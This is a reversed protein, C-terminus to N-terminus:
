RIISNDKFEYFAVTRISSGDAFVYVYSTMDIDQCNVYSTADDITVSSVKDSEENYKYFVTNSLTCYTKLTSFVTPDYIGGSKAIVRINMNEKAFLKGFINYYNDNVTRDGFLTKYSAIDFDVSMITAKLKKNFAVRIIDGREIPVKKNTSDNKVFFNDQVSFIEGTYTKGSYGYVREVIDGEDDVCKVVRDVMIEVTNRPIAIPSSPMYQEATMYAIIVKPSGGHGIQYPEVAYFVDGDFTSSDALCVDEPKFDATGETSPVCMVVTSNGITFLDRFARGPAKYRISTRTDTPISYSDRYHNLIFVDKDLGSVMSEPALATEIFSIDGNGNLTYRILQNQFEAQVVRKRDSYLERGLITNAFGVTGIDDANVIVGPTNNVKIKNALNYEKLVGDSNFVQVKVMRDATKSATIGMIYGYIVSAAKDIKAGAINGEIDIYFIGSDGVEIPEAFIPYARNLKYYNENIGLTINGKEDTSYETVKGSVRERIYFADVFEGDESVIASIVDWEALESIDMQEGKKVLSFYSQPENSVKLSKAYKDYIINESLSVSSVVFNKYEMITVLDYGNGRTDSVTITGATTKFTNENYSGMFKGNYVIDKGADLKINVIKKSPTEYSLINNEYGSISDATLVIDEYNRKITLIVSKVNDKDEYYFDVYNGLIYNDIENALLYSVKDIEIRGSGAGSKSTLGSWQTATVKGRGKYIDHYMSLMTEDKATGKIIRDDSVLSISSIEASLSSYLMKVAQELTIDDNYGVGSLTVRKTAGVNLYGVPFGGKEEALESFGLAGVIMKVAQGYTVPEEPAFETMTYGKIIGMTAAAEIYSAYQGSYDVDSFRRTEPLSEVNMISMLVAIFKERTIKEDPELEEGSLPKLFGLKSLISAENTWLQEALASEEASNASMPIYVILLALVMLIYFGRLKKM